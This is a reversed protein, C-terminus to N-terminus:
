ESLLKEADPIRPTFILPLSEPYRSAACLRSMMNVVSTIFLSVLSIRDNREDFPSYSGREQGKGGLYQVHAINILM